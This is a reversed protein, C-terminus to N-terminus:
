GTTVIMYTSRRGFRLSTLRAFIPSKFLSVQILLKNLKKKDSHSSYLDGTSEPWTFRIAQATEWNTKSIPYKMLMALVGQEITSSEENLVPKTKVELPICNNRRCEVPITRDDMQPHVEGKHTIFLGDAKISCNTPAGSLFPADYKDNFKISKTLIARALALSPYGLTRYVWQQVDPECYMLGPLGRTTFSPHIEHLFAVYHPDTFDFKYQRLLKEAHDILQEVLFPVYVIMRLQNQENLLVDYNAVNRTSFPSVNRSYMEPSAPTSACAVDYFTLHSNQPIQISSYPTYPRHANQLVRDNWVSVQQETHRSSGFSEQRWSLVKREDDTSGKGPQLPDDDDTGLQLSGYQPVEGPNDDPNYTMRRRKNSRFPYRARPTSNTPSEPVSLVLGRQRSAKPTEDAGEQSM